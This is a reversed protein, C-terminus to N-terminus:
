ERATVMTVEQAEYMAQWLMAFEQQDNGLQPDQSMGKGVSFIVRYYFGFDATIPASPTSAFQVVNGSYAIGSANLAGAATQAPTYLTYGSTMATGGQKIVPTGNLEYIAEAYQSMGLTRVLPACNNGDVTLPQDEVASDLPNQTLSGLNLLFSDYAGQRALFFGLLQNLEDHVPDDRLFEFSCEFMWLPDIVMPVRVTYGNAATELLTRFTPTRKVKWDLGPPSPFVANGM